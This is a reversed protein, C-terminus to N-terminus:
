FGFDRDEAEDTQPSAEGTFQLSLTKKRTLGCRPRYAIAFSGHDEVHEPPLKAFLGELSRQL